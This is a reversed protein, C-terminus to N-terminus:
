NANTTKTVPFLQRRAGPSYCFRKELEAGVNSEFLRLLSILMVSAALIIRVDNAVADLLAQSIGVKAFSTPGYHM